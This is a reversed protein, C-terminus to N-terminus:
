ACLGRCSLANRGDISSAPSTVTGSRGPAQLLARDQNANGLGLRHNFGSHPLSSRDVLRPTEAWRVTKYGNTACSRNLAATIPLAAAGTGDTGPKSQRHALIPDERSQTSSKAPTSPM